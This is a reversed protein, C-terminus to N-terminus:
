NFKSCRSIRYTIMAGGQGPFMFGVKYSIDSMTFLSRCRFLMLVQRLISLYLLLLRMNHRSYVNHVTGALLFSRTLIASQLMMFFIVIATM